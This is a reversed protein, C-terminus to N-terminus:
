ESTPVSQGVSPFGGEETGLAINICVYIWRHDLITKKKKPPPPTRLTNTPPQTALIIVIHASRVVKKQFKHPAEAGLAVGPCAVSVTLFRALEGLM